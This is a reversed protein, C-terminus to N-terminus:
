ARCTGGSLSSYGARSSMLIPALIQNIVPFQTQIDAASAPTAYVVGVAGEVSVSKYKGPTWDKSLSGPSQFNRYAAEYTANEIEVPNSDSPITHRDIDYAGNRPWERVQGRGGVKMGPFDSRFSSDVWESGVLLDVIVEDDPVNIDDIERGRAAHYARYGAPTGYYTM